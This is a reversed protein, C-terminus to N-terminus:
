KPEESFDNLLMIAEEIQQQNLEIVCKEEILRNLRAEGNGNHEILDFVCIMNGGTLDPYLFGAKNLAIVRETLYRRGLQKSRHDVLYLFKAEPTM